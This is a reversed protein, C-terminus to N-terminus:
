SPKRKSTGPRKKGGVRQSTKPGAGKKQGIEKKKKAM